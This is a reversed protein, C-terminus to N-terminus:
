DFAFTLGVNLASLGYGAEGYIGFNDNFMYRAGVFLQYSLPSGISINSSESNFGPSNSTYNVSYKSFGIGLGIYPDLDRNRIDFHYAGRAMVSLATYRYDYSYGTQLWKGGYSSFGIQVGLGFNDTIGREYSAAFPGFGSFNYGEYAQYANLIKGYGLGVGYGVQLFNYDEEFFQANSKFSATLIAIALILKKM